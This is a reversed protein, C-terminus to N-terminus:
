ISTAWTESPVPGVFEVPLSYIRHDADEADASVAAASEEDQMRLNMAFVMIRTSGDPGFKIASTSTFPEPLHSVSDFAVARTSDDRSVLVPATTQARVRTFDSRFLLAASAFFLLAAAIVIRTVNQKENGDTGSHTM